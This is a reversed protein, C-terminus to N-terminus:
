LSRTGPINLGYLNVFLNHRNFGRWLQQSEEEAIWLARCSCFFEAEALSIFM